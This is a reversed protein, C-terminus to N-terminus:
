MPPKSCNTHGQQLFADLCSITRRWESPFMMFTGHGGEPLLVARVHPSVLMDNVYAFSEKSNTFGDRENFIFLLETDPLSLVTEPLVVLEDAMFGCQLCHLHWIEKCFLGSVM